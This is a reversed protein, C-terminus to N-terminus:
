QGSNLVASGAKELVESISSNYGNSNLYDTMDGDLEYEKNEGRQTYLRVENFGQAAAPGASAAYENIIIIDKISDNNYDKFAVSLVAGFTWNGRLNNEEMGPFTFLVEEGDLLLFTVDKDPFISVDPKYSAFTVEGWRDLNVEFTQEEIQWIHNPNQIKYIFQNSVFQYSDGARKLTLETDSIYEEEQAACNLLFTDEDIQKGSTCVFSVYNADGHQTVWIDYDSLYIWGLDIKIDSFSIGMKEKLFGDIQNTTLRYYDTYLGTENVAELYAKEEEASLSETEMGAGSYLVQNLDVQNPSDYESLLFGYNENSNVFSTFLQLEEKTLEREIIQSEDKEATIKNTDGTKDDMTRDIVANKDAIEQNDESSIDNSSLSQNTCSTLICLGILAIALVKKKM